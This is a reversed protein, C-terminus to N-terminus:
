KFVSEMYTSYANKYIDIYEEIGMAKLEEKFDPIEEVPRLGTIFKASEATVHENIVTSLETARLAEDESLYVSPLKVKTLNNEWADMVTLRTYGDADLAACLNPMDEENIYPAWDLLIGENVGYTVIQTPEMTGIVLDPMADTGLMLALQQTYEDGTAPATVDFTM